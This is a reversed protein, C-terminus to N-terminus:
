PMAINARLAAAPSFSSLPRPLTDFVHHPLIGRITLNVFAEAVTVLSPFLKPPFVGARATIEWLAFVVIFPFANRAFVWWRPEGPARAARAALTGTETTIDAM